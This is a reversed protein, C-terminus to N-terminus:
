TFNPYKCPRLTDGSLYKNILLTFPNVKYHLFSAPVVIVLHDFNVNGTIPCISM